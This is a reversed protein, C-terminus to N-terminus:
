ELLCPPVSQIISIGKKNMRSVRKYVDKTFEEDVTLWMIEASINQCMKVDTLPILKPDYCFVERLFDRAFHTRLYHFNPDYFIRSDSISEPHDSIGLDKAHFNLYERRVPKIGIIQKHKFIQDRINKRSDFVIEVKNKEKNINSPVYNNTGSPQISTQPQSKFTSPDHSHFMDNTPEKPRAKKAIDKVIEKMKYVERDVAEKVSSQVIQNVEERSIIQDKDVKTEM